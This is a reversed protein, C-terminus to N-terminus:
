SVTPRGVHLSDSPAGQFRPASDSYPASELSQAKWWEGVDKITAFWAKRQYLHEVLRRYVNWWSEKVISDPHWIITLVGGVAEVQAAIEVSADFAAEEDLGLGRDPRFLAVDQIVLPIEMVPLTDDAKLDYMSWPYSTGFRFGIDDNLGISSDYLFGADAHCRPTVRIDHHLFHQRVSVIDEGVVQEVQEKQRRLESVDDFAYWAAHLGVEWGRRHIERMMEAVTCRQGDFRVVDSYAYEGDTQHPTSVQEPLLFFTSRAGVSSEFELWREVCHFPDVGPSTAAKLSWAGNRLFIRAAKIKSTQSQLRFTRFTQRFRQRPSRSSVHDVDHTLCVAFKKDDPWVPGQGNQARYDVDLVPSHLLGLQHLMHRDAEPVESERSADEPWSEADYYGQLLRQPNFEM